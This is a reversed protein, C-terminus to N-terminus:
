ADPFLIEVLVEIDADDEMEEFVDNEDDTFARQPILSPIKSKNPPM